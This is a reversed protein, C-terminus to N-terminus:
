KCTEKQIGIKQEVWAKASELEVAVGTWLALQAAAQRVFMDLGNLTAVGAQRADALLRTELPNYILDFVLECDALAEKPMPSEDIAPWMGVTTCNILIAGSRDVRRAWDKATAGFESALRATREPSRGYVNVQCGLERLGALVARASGGTGLLDVSTKALDSRDVHLAAAMSDIAAYCDTNYARPGDDALVLTNVAGIRQSLRDAGQDVWQLAAQKHPVTVSLGRLDLWPRQLCEDLFAAVEDRKRDVRIPLYVANIDHQEFWHNFLAPSMSHSIPDGIVGYVLTSENHKHWQYLSTMDGLTVQGPATMEADGLSCYTGFAKLKNSLVRTWLGFEGMAVAVVRRGHKHMLDLAEFSDLVHKTAYAVKAVSGTTLIDKVKKSLDAPKKEFDHCSLLVREFHEAEGDIVVSEDLAADDDAAVSADAAVDMDKDVRAHRSAKADVCAHEIQSRASESALWDQFEFDVMVHTTSTYCALLTARQLATLESFGGEAKSRCTVLLRVKSATRQVYSLWEDTVGDLRDIRLEVAKAGQAIAADAKAMLGSVKEDIVSAILLTM